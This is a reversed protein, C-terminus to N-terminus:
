NKKGDDGKQKKVKKKVLDKTTAKKFLECTPRGQKADRRADNPNSYWM